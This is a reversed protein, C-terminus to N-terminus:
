YLLVAVRFTTFMPQTGASQCAGIAATHYQKSDIATDLAAPLKSLDSSQWRLRFLPQSAGAGGHEMECTQRADQVPGSVALGRQTLLAGVQQEVQERTMPKVSRSFDVVAYLEGHNRVVAVGAATFTPDLINARHPTSHMWENQLIDVSPGLAINEAITQFHAGAQAARADVPAEGPYQHSLQPQKAMLEAHARAAAALTDDWTLQTLGHEARAANTATFIAKEPQEQAFAPAVILTAALAIYTSFAREM